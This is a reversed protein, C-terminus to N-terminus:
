EGWARRLAASMRRRADAGAAAVCWVLAVLMAGAVLGDGSM